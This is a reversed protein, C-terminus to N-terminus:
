VHTRHHTETAWVMDLHSVDTLSSGTQGWSAMNRHPDWPVIYGLGTSIRYCSNLLVACLKLSYVVEDHLGPLCHVSCQKICKNFIVWGRCWMYKLLNCCTELLGVLVFLKLFGKYCGDCWGYQWRILLKFIITSCPLSHHLISTKPVTHTQQHSPM